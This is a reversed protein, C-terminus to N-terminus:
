QKSQTRAANIREAKNDIHELFSNICGYIAESNYGFHGAHDDIEEKTLLFFKLLELDPVLMEYPKRGVFKRSALFGFKLNDMLTLNTILINVYFRNYEIEFHKLDTSMTVIHNHGRGLLNYKVEYLEYGKM